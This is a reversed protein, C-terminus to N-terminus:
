QVTKSAFTVVSSVEELDVPRGVENLTINTDGSIKTSSTVPPYIVAGTVIGTMASAGSMNAMDYQPLVQGMGNFIAERFWTWASSTFTQPDKTLGTAEDIAQTNGLIAIKNELLAITLDNVAQQDGARQADLLLTELEVRQGNLINARDQLLSVIRQQDIQGSIAGELDVIQKNLDNVNLSFGARANVDEIRATFAARTNEQITVDLEALQDTLEQILGINGQAMAGGLVGQLEARQTALAAGRQQFIGGRSFAEGAVTAVSGLGVAGVADLMRGGLDIRGLRRSARANIREMSDRLEQQISEFIQTRLDAVQAALQDALEGAGRRRAPGIRAELEAAQRALMDRQANNVQAVIGENGLAAGIRRTIDHGGAEQEYRSNIEDVIAQQRAVQAEFIRALAEAHADRINRRRERLDAAVAVLQGVEDAEGETVGGRRLQRLRRRTKKLAKTIVGEEGLVKQFDRRTNELEQTAVDLEDMRQSVRGSARHFKYTARILSRALRNTFRERAEDIKDIVGGEATLAQLSKIDQGLDDGKARIARFARNAEKMVKKWSEIPLVPLAYVGKAIDDIRKRLAETTYAAFASKKGGGDGGEAVAESFLEARKRYGAATPHIGGGPGGIRGGLVLRVNEQERAFERIIRNKAEAGPGRVTSVIMEQDNKLLRHARKLNRALVNAHADNTGVDFIVERYSKKLKRKLVDVAEDSARGVRADTVLKDVLKKLAGAMGVSLSDGIQLVEGGAAFARKAGGGGGFGLMGKLADRTTGLLNAMKRQQRENLVWERAHALIPVPQGSPGPIEGGKAYAGGGRAWIVQAGRDSDGGGYTAIIYRIAALINDLPAFVNGHGPLMFRRFTAGITQILGKSPDGRQANIDWNNVANPNFGSERSAQRTLAKVWLSVSTTIDLMKLAKNIFGEVQSQSLVGKPYKGPTEVGETSAGLAEDLYANATKLVKDIVSQALTHLGGKPGTIKPRKVKAFSEGTYNEGELWSLHIHNDRGHNPDGTYGVWRWPKRPNNQSPEAFKALRDILDWSGGPGPVADIALGKPHEGGAAHGSAAYGDTVLLKYQRALKVVDNVISSHILEGKPQGPIQVMGGRAMGPQEPGGAHYAHVRDFTEAFSHGYYAEVAPAVYKQHAWNLVAEGAGLVTHYRDRGRQGPRGVFGGTAKGDGSKPEEFGFNIHKEGLGKLAKNTEHGIYNLGQNTVKQLSRWTDSWNDVILDGRRKFRNQIDTLGNEVQRYMRAMQRGTAVQMERFQDIIENTSRRATTVMLVWFRRWQSAFDDLEGGHFAISLSGADAGRARGGVQYRGGSGQGGGGLARRLAYVAGHGGMAAVEQRTLVHEGPELLAAIRDGRGTGPVPGGLALHPIPNDPLNISGIPGPIDIKDPLAGNILDIFANVLKDVFSTGTKLGSAIGNLVEKGVNKFANVFAKAADKAINGLRRPMGRLWDWVDEIGNKIASGLGKIIRGWGRVVDEALDVFRGPLRKLWDWASNIVNRIIQGVRRFGRGFFSAVDKVIDWIRGPLRGFFRGIAKVADWALPGLKKLGEWFLEPLIRALSTFMRFLGGFVTKLGDLIMGFDLRFIGELVKLFGGIVDIAGGFIRGLARGFVELFIAGIDIVVKLVPRLIDMLGGGESIAAWLDKANEVLKEISPQVEKWFAEFGGKVAEWADDLLGLQDLLIVIGAVAALIGTGILAFRGATLAIRGISAGAASSHTAWAFLAKGINIFPATLLKVTGLIGGVVRSLVLAVVVGRLLREGLPTEAFEVLKETANGLYEVIDGLAPIVVDKLLTAFNHVREPTFAGFMEVALAELVGVVEHIIGRSDEFFDRVKDRNEEVKDTLGDIAKTADNVLNFGTQAGGAGSLAAFLEIVALGLKVWAEFHKEGTNFFDTMAGKQSTLKLFDDALDGIFDLMKSLAPGATEAINALAKGVSIAIDALPALNKRGAEAIRLFQDIMKDSTFADFIRNLQNSITVATRRAMSIVEPMLMIRQVGEVSRTFSDIILDTIPRYTKKYAEQINTLAQYLRREAPSLQALLYNLTAAATQTGAAAETANRKATEIGRSAKAASREADELARKAQIVGETGEVGGREGRAADRRARRADTLKEEADAQAELVSLEARAISEVDGGAIAQRLQEQAEQQSLVAGRAALDAAREAAILDQLDDRADKRAQTLGEQAERVQRQSNALGEQATRVSDTADAVRRGATAGQVAAQQQATQAQKVVDMISSVRSLAATLLGISPLAQGVGAVFAGGIAAGAQAASSAVAVFAGGLGGLVTILQQAFGIAALVGIGRLQNDLTAISGTNGSFTKSLAGFVNNARSADREVNRLTRRVREAETAFHREDEASGKFAVSLRQLERQVLKLEAIDAVDARGRGSVRQTVAKQRQAVREADVERQRIREKDAAEQELIKIREDSAKKEDRIQQEIERAVAANGRQAANVRRREYEEVIKTRKAIEAQLDDTIKKDAATIDAAIQRARRSWDFAREADRSSSKFKLSLAELEKGLKNLRVAAFDASVAERRHADALEKVERNAASAQERYERTTTAAKRTSKVSTEVEKSLDSFSKKAQDNGGATGQMVARWERFKDTLNGATNDLKEMSTNLADIKGKNSDAANAFLRLEERAKRLATALEDRAKLVIRLIYEVENM